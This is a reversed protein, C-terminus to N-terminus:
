FMKYHMVASRKLSSTLIYISVAAIIARDATTFASDLLYPVANNPWQASADSRVIGRNANGLLLSPFNKFTLYWIVLNYAKNEISVIHM